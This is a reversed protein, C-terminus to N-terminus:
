AARSSWLVRSTALRLAISMGALAALYNSYAIHFFFTAIAYVLTACFYCFAMANLDHLEALRSTRRFIRYTSVLTVGIVSVYLLFAPIGCESAVQTYSNHTGLWNARTGSKVSDGYTATAFQGPGVGVFPHTIAYMVSQRFLAMRQVQSGVASLDTSESITITEPSLAILSLRHFASSPVIVLATVAVPVAVLLLRARNRGFVICVLVVALFALFSGRSGTKLMYVLAILIGLAGAAQKWVQRQYLLFMFQTIAILLQLALDNANSFFMSDPIDFRGDKVAGFLFCDLLLVFNSAIAFYLFIRCHWFSILFAACYFLIIWNHVVYDLLLTVSGGKWVSFPVALVIWALFFLWLRGTVDRLGRLLNGSLVMMLPILVWSVTSIYAKFHFARMAFENAFGSLTLICFLGFGVRQMLGVDSPSPNLIFPSHSPESPLALVAPASIPAAPTRPTPATKVLVKSTNFRSM